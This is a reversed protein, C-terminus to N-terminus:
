EKIKFLDRRRKQYEFADNLVSGGELPALVDTITEPSVLAIGEGSIPLVVYVDVVVFGAPVTQLGQKVHMMQAIQVKDAVTGIVDQGSITKGSIEYGIM